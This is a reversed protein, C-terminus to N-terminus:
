ANLAEEYDELDDEDSDSNFAEPDPLGVLACNVVLVTTTTLRTTNNKWKPELSKLFSRMKSISTM